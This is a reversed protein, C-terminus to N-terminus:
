QREEKEVSKHGKVHVKTGLAFCAITKIHYKLLLHMPNSLCSDSSRLNPTVKAPCELMRFAQLTVLATHRVEIQRKRSQMVDASSSARAFREM